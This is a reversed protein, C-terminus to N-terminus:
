SEPSYYEAPNLGSSLQYKTIGMKDLVDTVKSVDSYSSDLTGIIKIPTSTDVNNMKLWNTIQANFDKDYSSMNGVISNEPDIDNICRIRGASFIQITVGKEYQPGSLTDSDPTEVPLPESDKM